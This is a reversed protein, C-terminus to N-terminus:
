TSRVVEYVTDVALGDPVGHLVTVHPGIPRWLEVPTPGFLAVVRAGSVAALHTTGADNGVVVRAGACLRATELLDPTLTPLGDFSWGRELEDPGLVLQVDRGDAVLREALEGFGPWCKFIGGSGPFLLVDADLPELEILPVALEEPRQPRELLRTARHGPDSPHVRRLGLTAALEDSASVVLGHEPRGLLEWAEGRRGAWLDLLRPDDERLVREAPVRGRLLDAAARGM